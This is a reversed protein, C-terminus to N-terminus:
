HVRSPELPKRRQVVIGAPTVLVEYRDGARELEDTILKAMYTMTAREEGEAALRSRTYKVMVLLAGWVSASFGATLGCLYWNLGTTAPGTLIALAMSVLAALLSGCAAIATIRVSREAFLRMAETHTM